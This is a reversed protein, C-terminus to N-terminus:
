LRSTNMRRRFNQRDQRSMGGWVGNENHAFAWALCELAVPCRNCYEQKPYRTAVEQEPYFLNVDVGQCAAEEVWKDNTVDVTLLAALLTADRGKADAPRDPAITL